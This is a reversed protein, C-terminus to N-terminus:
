RRYTCRWSLSKYKLDVKKSATMVWVGESVCVICLELPLKKRKGDGVCVYVISGPPAGPPAGAPWRPMAPTAGIGAAPTAYGEARGAEVIGAEVIGAEVIGADVIPDVRGPIAAYGAMGAAVVRGKVAVYEVAPPVVKGEEM